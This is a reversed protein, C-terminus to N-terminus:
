RYTVNLFNDDSPRFMILQQRGDWVEPIHYSDFAYAEDVFTPVLIGYAECFLRQLQININIRDSLNTTSYSVGLENTVICDKVKNGDKQLRWMRIMCGRMHGNIRESVKRAKEEEFAVIMAQMKEIDAIDQGVSVKEKELDNIDNELSTVQSQLGYKRNSEELKSMLEQKEKMMAKSDEDGDLLPVIIGDRKEVLQKYAITDEFPTYTSKIDKIENELAEIEKDFAEGKDMDMFKANAEEYDAKSLDYEAKLVELAEKKAKGKQINDAKDKEKQEEFQAKLREIDEQPLPQHCYPCITTSEDFAREKISTLKNRMATLEKEAEAVKTAKTEMISKKADVREKETQYALITKAKAAKKNTLETEKDRKRDDLAKQHEDRKKRIEMDVDGREKIKQNREAVQKEMGEKLGLMKSDIDKIKANCEDISSKLASFDNENYKAILKQKEDIRLPIEEMRRKLPTLRNFCQEKLGDISYTQLHEKLASYDMDHMDEFSIDGAIDELLHRAKLMDENALSSFFEGCLLYPLLASPVGFIGKITDEFMSSSTEINDVYLTYEDSPAKEFIDTGRKRTFKAKARREIKYEKGDAEICAEVIAEPTNPSLEYKHDYLEANKNKGAETYGTLLWMWAHQISSKGIGNRGRVDTIGNSAFEICINLGKWDHLALSKLIAQRM